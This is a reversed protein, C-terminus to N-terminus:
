SFLSRVEDLDFSKKEDDVSIISEAIHRKKEQLALIKEEISDKCIIRYAMVHKNQGIRHSRDIAQNEVAPNWWPDVIFVYDAETLNLGTGGAKTSILFVRVADNKQFNEVKDKRNRTRGDLYEYPIGEAELRAQILALMKTFSSFVLIKHAGTKEKINETLLDLKVSDNGYDEKDSLLAPSNCIQRLKLLGDLIHLQSKEIGDSAIQKLLQERYRKKTAEYLKRQAAGMDCYLISETKPPLETAVQEKTRRLIFPHILKALLAASDHDKHKDIADAFTSKFHSNNGLLGPNLFNMQAYLDFTNNEIPTGSLCLRNEAKLLRVAKYRQSQPNKIAQSEDLIAYNFPIHQLTEIDRTLTGYTTLIIDYAALHAADTNREAGTLAYVRLEPTFKEAEMQWNYILSTPAVILSPRAAEGQDKLHQLFALTQLTKGLGMDDALCGGLRNQHLFALWNLGHQQYPRLTARLKPSPAVPPQEHLNQLRHYRAQLELLYDPREELNQLLDDIIGLQYPSFRIHDKKVDGSKLWPTIKELWEQPLIGLTGDGLTIYNQKKLVAKQLDKLSVHQDGFSITIELDFWDIGSTTSSKITPRNLNYPYKINKLGLLEIDAAHLTDAANLLWQDKILERADLQYPAGNAFAPHLARVTDTLRAELAEDRPRQLYDGDATPQLRLEQSTPDILREPYQVLPRFNIIGDQEDLYLQARPAAEEDSKPATKIHASKIPYRQSLSALALEQFEAADQAAIKTQPHTSFWAIDNTIQPDAVPYLTDQHYIFLPTIRLQKNTLAYDKDGLRLRANIQYLNGDRALELDLNVRDRTNLTVPTLNGRAYGDGANHAYIPCTLQRCIDAFERVIPIITGPESQLKRYNDAIREISYCLTLAELSHRGSLVHKEIDYIDLPKIRTALDTRTKNYKGEIVNIGVFQGGRLEVSLAHGYDSVAIPVDDPLRIREFIDCPALAPDRPVVRLGQDTIDAAFHKRDDPNDPDFGYERMTQALHRAPYDDSFYDIGFNDLLHYLASLVHHCYEGRAQIRCNCSLSLTNDSRRYTLTQESHTGWDDFATIVTDRSRKIVRVEDGKAYHTHVNRQELDRLIASPNISRDPNLTYRLPQRTTTQAGTQKSRIHKALAELAAVSHKCIGGFSYPCTCKVSLKKSYNITIRYIAGQSGYCFYSAKKDTIEEENAEYRMGRAISTPFAHTAIYQAIAEPTPYM